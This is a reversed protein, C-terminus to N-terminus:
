KGFCEDFPMTRFARCKSKPNANIVDVGLERELIASAYALAERHRAENSPHWPGGWFKGSSGRPELDLGVLYIQRYRWAHVALQLALYMVTGCLYAGYDLPRMSWNPKDTQMINVKTAGPGNGGTVLGSWNHPDNGTIHQYMGWQNSDTMIHYKSEILEWSRNLGITECDIRNLDVDLISPGNGLIAVRKLKM